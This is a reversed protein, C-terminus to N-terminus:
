HAPCDVKHMIGGQETLIYEHKDICYITFVTSGSEVHKTHLVVSHGPTQPFNQTEDCSLCCVFLLLALMKM